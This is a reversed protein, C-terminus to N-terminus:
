CKASDQKVEPRSQSIINMGSDQIKLSKVSKVHFWVFIQYNKEWIVFILFFPLECFKVTWVFTFDCELKILMFKSWLVDSIQMQNLSLFNNQYSLM